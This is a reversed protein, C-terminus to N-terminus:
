ALYLRGTSQAITNVTGTATDAAVGGRTRGTRYRYLTGGYPLHPRIQDAGTNGDGFDWTYYDTQRRQEPVHGPVTRLVPRASVRHSIAPVSKGYRHGFRNRHMRVILLNGTLSVLFTGSSAYDYTPSYANSARATALVGHPTPYTPHRISSHPQSTKAFRM